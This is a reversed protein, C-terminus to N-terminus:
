EIGVRVVESSVSMGGFVFRAPGHGVEVGVFDADWVEARLVRLQARPADALEPDVALHPGPVVIRVLDRRERWLADDQGATRLRGRHLTGRGRRLLHEVAAQRQEADAVAHLRHGPLDSSCVDSSWDSIRM